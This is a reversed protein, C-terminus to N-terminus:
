GGESAQVKRTQSLYGPATVDVVYEGAQGDAKATGMFAGTMPVEIHEPGKLTVTAIIPRMRSTVSIVFQARKMLADLRLEVTATRGEELLVDREGIRYGEKQVSLRVRGSPLEQSVFTGSRPATAVPPMDSGILSVIAGGIPKKTRADVVTGAIRGTKPSQ